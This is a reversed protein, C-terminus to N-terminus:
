SGVVRALAERARRRGVVVRGRRPPRQRVRRAPRRVAAGRRVRPADPPLIERGDVPRDRGHRGDPVAVDHRDGVRLAGERNERHDDAAAEVAVDDGLRRADDRVEVRLAAGVVLLHVRQPAPERVVLHREVHAAVHAAVVARVEAVPRREVLAGDDVVEVGHRALLDRVVHQRGADAVVVQEPNQRAAREALEDVDDAEDVKAGALGEDGLAVAAARHEDEVAALDPHLATSVVTPGLGGLLRELRAAREALGRREADVRPRADRRAGDRRRLDVHNRLVCEEGTEGREGLGEVGHALM